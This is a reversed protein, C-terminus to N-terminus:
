FQLKLALQMSRPGGAQFLSNLGGVSSTSVIQTSRGFNTNTLIGIPNAFNPTNFLNFADARFDLGVKETLRFRRRVSLDVQQLGFGRLIGRGLAGQRGQALPSAGDFAAPNFRRGGPLADSYLYLPQGAVVDPRAINTLGLGLPDRGTLVNVPSATRVRVISDLAFGGLVARAARSASFTPLEYSAAGTFAHRIDFSSSGRDSSPSLRAVPAQFSNNSEDSATDLSKAWTYSLLTQLRSTMRRKFQMQLSNYDSYGGNNVSDVRTFSANQLVQPRLSEIRALRRGAAGVYSISLSNANGIPQEVALSYQLSYPLKYHDAYDFLRPYPPNLTQPGVESFFVPADLPTNSVTRIRSFPYNSPTFATGTYAYGLDYFSGFGARIVTSLGRFPQYAIGVRPAFNGYTTNYLKAGQSALKATSPNEIGTLTLPLNGNAESPAPNVEWRLGYTLTLRPSLKWADQVFTSFNTYRPQLYTDVQRVEGSPVIGTTLATITPFTLTKSFLRGGISPALRRVDVGFKWAHAGTNWSTTNVVNFQRQTNRSFTGPSITNEDNGGITLYYLSTAPNAFSPFLIERPLIKAGGFTDQEYIQSAAARSWNFRLDNTLSPSLILTSGVTATETKGPLVAVFSPTAFRGRERNESPALNYRGFVSIRQSFSHDARVSTANLKSPNSFGAVYPTEAPTAALPAAVPLPYAELISKLMGTAASRAALSPVRSPASIVPQILRLGEYSVFFFTRNRGDYLKPIFAPGGMTFGFDNQRLPPRKLGNFNGFWSNADLKDNRLYNFGSGHLSNTGSRTVIAIQAGPQRGYEPAYTSTQITFEQVADVSALASTSGQSSFSPTGGGAGEYPTTAFPLGFNAGVGDVTFYNTGSRQGNVSFQGADPLSSTVPVVGPSLGILTQFSRGNLPQNEIFIRDVSTAVSPSERVLPTAETVVITEDRAAVKLKLRLSRQDNASIAIGTFRAKAFGAQEVSLEYNSPAVQSFVFNGNADTTAARSIGRGPDLLTLKAAIIVGEQEDQVTGSLSAASSQGFLAPAGTCFALAILPWPRKLTNM